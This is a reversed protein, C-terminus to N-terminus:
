TNWWFSSFVSRESDPAERDWNEGLKRYEIQHLNGPPIQLAKQQAVLKEAAEVGYKMGTSMGIDVYIVTKDAVARWVFGAEIGLTREAPINDDLVGPQTYLAHSAYPAEGRVLCDHMAARLYRRNREVITPDTSGYPSELIVRQM